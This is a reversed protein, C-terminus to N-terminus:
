HVQDDIVGPLLFRGGAELITANAHSINEAIKEIRENNILVDGQIIKGENVIQANKILTLSM